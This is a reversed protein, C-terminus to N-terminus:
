TAEKKKKNKVSQTSFLQTRCCLLRGRRDRSFPTNGGWHHSMWNSHLASDLM